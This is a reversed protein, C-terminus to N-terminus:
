NTKIRNKAGRDKNLKSFKYGTGGNRFVTFTEPLESSPIYTNEKMEFEKIPEGKPRATHGAYIYVIDKFSSKKDKLIIIGSIKEESFFSSGYTEEIDYGKLVPADSLCNSTATKIIKNVEAMNAETNQGWDSKSTDTMEINPKTQSLAKDGNMLGAAIAAGGVLKSAFGENFKKLYKM